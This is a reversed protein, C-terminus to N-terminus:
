YYILHFIFFRTVLRNTDSKSYNYKTDGRITVIHPQPTDINTDHPQPVDGTPHPSIRQTHGPVAHTDTLVIGLLRTQIAAQQHKHRRDEEAKEEDYQGDEPDSRGEGDSPERAARSRRARKSRGGTRRRHPAPQQPPPDQPGGHVGQDTPFDESSLDIMPKLVVSGSQSGCQEIPQSERKIKVQLIIAKTPDNILEIFTKKAAVGRFLRVRGKGSGVAEVFGIGDVRKVMITFHDSDVVRISDSLHECLSDFFKSDSLSASENDHALSLLKTVDVDLMERLPNDPLKRGLQCGVLGARSGTAADVVFLDRTQPKAAEPKTPPLYDMADAFALSLPKELDDEDVYKFHVLKTGVKTVTCPITPTESDERDDDESDDDDDTDLIGMVLKFRLYVDKGVRATWYEKPTLPM